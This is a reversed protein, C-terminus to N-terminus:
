VWGRGVGEGLGGANALVWCRPNPESGATLTSRQRVLYSGWEEPSALAEDKEEEEEM